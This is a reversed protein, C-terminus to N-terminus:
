SPGGSTENSFRMASPSPRLSPSGDGDIDKAAIDRRCDGIHTRDVPFREADIEDHHKRRVRKAARRVRM